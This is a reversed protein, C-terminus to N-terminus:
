WSVRFRAGGIRAFPARAEALGEALLKAYRAQAEDEAAEMASAVSLYEEYSPKEPLHALDFPPLAELFYLSRSFSSMPHVSGDKGMVKRRRIRDEEVKVFIPYIMAGALHAIRIGGTRPRQREGTTSAGDHLSVLLPKGSGVADVCDAVSKRSNSKDLPIFGAGGLIHGIVPVKFAGEDMLFIVPNGAVHMLALADFTTSHNLVLYVRKEGPKRPAIREVGSGIVRAHSKMWLTSYLRLMGFCIEESPM